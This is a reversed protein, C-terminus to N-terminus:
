TNEFKVYRSVNRIVNFKEFVETQECKIVRKPPCISLVNKSPHCSFNFYRNVYSKPRMKGNRITHWEECRVM